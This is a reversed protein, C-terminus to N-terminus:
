VWPKEVFVTGAKSKSPAGYTFILEATETTSLNQIGHIEGKPTYIFCGPGVEYEKKEEGVFIRLRGKLIFMSVECNAHYHRQNRGGPPVVTYGMLIKKSNVTYENVGFEIELGPEYEMDKPVDSRRIIKVM